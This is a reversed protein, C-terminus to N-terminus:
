QGSQHEGNGFYGGGPGLNPNYFGEETACGLCLMGQQLTWGDYKCMGDAWRNCRRADGDAPMSSPRPYPQVIITGDDAVYMGQAAAVGSAQYLLSREEDESIQVPDHGIFFSHPQPEPCYCWLQNKSIFFYSHDAPFRFGDDYDAADARSPPDSMFVHRTKRRGYFPMLPTIRIQGNSTYRYRRYQLQPQPQPQAQGQGQTQVQVQAQVQVQGQASYTMNPQQPHM